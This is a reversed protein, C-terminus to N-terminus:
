ERCFTAARYEPSINPNQVTHKIRPITPTKNENHKISVHVYMWLPLQFNKNNRDRKPPAVM